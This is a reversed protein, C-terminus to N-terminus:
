LFLNTMIQYFVDGYTLTVILAILFAPLYPLGDKVEVEKIKGANEMKILAIIEEKTVGSKKPKYHYKDASIEKTIWDGEVLQSPKIRKVLCVRETARFIMILFILIIIGLIMAFVLKYVSLAASVFGAGALSYAIFKNKAFDKKLEPMAKSYNKLFIALMGIVGIVAGFVLINVWLSFLFPWLAVAPFPAFMAGYAALLKADGGGWMGAVYLLLGVAFFIAAGALSFIIPWISKEVASIVAYAGIGSALMFYNTWDPVLRAKLDTYTGVITGFLAIGILVFSADTM